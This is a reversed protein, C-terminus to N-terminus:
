NTPVAQPPKAARKKPAATAATGPLFTSASLSTTPQALTSKIIREADANFLLQLM